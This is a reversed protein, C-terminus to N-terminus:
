VEEIKDLQEWDEPTECKDRMHSRFMAFPDGPKHLEYGTANLFEAGAVADKKRYVAFATEEDEDIVEWVVTTGKYRSNGFNTDSLRTYGGTTEAHTTKRYTWLM